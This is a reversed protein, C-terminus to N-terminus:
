NVKIVCLIFLTHICVTHQDQSIYFVYVFGEWYYVNLGHQDNGEQFCNTKICKRELAPMHEDDELFHMFFAM